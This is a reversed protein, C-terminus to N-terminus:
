NRRPDDQPPPEEQPATGLSERFSREGITEHFLERKASAYQLRVYRIDLLAIVITAFFLIFFAAWYIAFYLPSQRPLAGQAGYGAMLVCAATTISGAIRWRTQAKM